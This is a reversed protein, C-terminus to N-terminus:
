YSLATLPDVEWRLMESSINLFLGWLWFKSKPIQMDLISLYTHSGRINFFVIYIKYYFDTSLSREASKLCM